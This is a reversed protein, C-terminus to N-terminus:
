SRCWLGARFVEFTPANGINLIHMDGSSVMDHVMMGRENTRRDGWWINRANLDGGLIFSEGVFRSIRTGLPALDGDPESYCSAVVLRRDAVMFEVFVNNPDSCDSLLTGSISDDFVIVAAKSVRVESGIQFIRVGGAGKIVGRTGTYPEQVLAIGVSFENRFVEETAARCRRLNWQLCGVAGLVCFANTPVM